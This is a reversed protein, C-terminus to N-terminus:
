PKRFKVLDWWAELRQEDCPDELTVQIEPQGCHRESSKKSDLLLVDCVIMVIFILIM